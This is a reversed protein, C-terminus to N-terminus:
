PKFNLKHKCFKLDVISYIKTRMGMKPNTVGYSQIIGSIIAVVIFTQVRYM